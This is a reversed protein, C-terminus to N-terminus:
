KKLSEEYHKYAFKELERLEKLYQQLIIRLTKSTIANSIKVFTDWDLGAYMLLLVSQDKKKNEKLEKKKEPTYTAIIEDLPEDFGESVIEWLDQSGFLAKMKIYWDEIAVPQKKKM